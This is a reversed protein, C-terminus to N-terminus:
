DDEEEYEEELVLEGDDSEPESDDAEDLLKSLREQVTSAPKVPGTHHTAVEFEPESADLPNGHSQCLECADDAVTLPHTHKPEPGKKPAKPAQETEGLSQKLHRKCFVEGKLASFKCPQKKATTGACCPAVPKAKPEPTPKAPGEITVATAVKPERKKYQRPVKIAAEAAQLYKAELEAFDLKYDVAIRELFVRDRERVLADCALAFQSAMLVKQEPKKTFNSTLPGSVVCIKPDHELSNAVRIKDNFKVM